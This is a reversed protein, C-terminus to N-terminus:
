ILPPDYASPTTNPGLVSSTLPSCSFSCLLSSLSRYPEGFIIRTILYLLQSTHPV